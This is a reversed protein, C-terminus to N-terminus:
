QQELYQDNVNEIIACPGEQRGKTGDPSGQQTSIKSTAEKKTVYVSKLPDM